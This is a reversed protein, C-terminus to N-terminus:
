LPLIQLANILCLCMILGNHIWECHVWLAAWLAAGCYVATLLWLHQQIQMHWYLCTNSSINVPLGKELWLFWQWVSLWGKMVWYIFYSGNSKPSILSDSTLDQLESTKEQQATLMKFLVISFFAETVAKQSNSGKREVCSWSSRKFHYILTCNLVVAHVCACLAYVPIESFM